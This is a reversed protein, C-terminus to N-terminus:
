QSEGTRECYESATEHSLKPISLDITYVYEVDGHLGQTPEYAGVKWSSFDGPLNPIDDVGYENHGLQILWGAAQGTNDRIRGSQVWSTFVALSKGTVKPYGDSHRYFWLEDGFSDKIIINARTSM